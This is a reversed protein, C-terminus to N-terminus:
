LDADAGSINITVSGKHEHTNKDGYTGPRLKAAVWKRADVRVRRSDPAEEGDAIAIIEDALSDAQEERARAYMDSFEKHATLWRYITARNPMEDPECVAKLACGSGIAECILDALEPSYDTPRAM